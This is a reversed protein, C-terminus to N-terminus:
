SYVEIKNIVIYSRAYEENGKILTTGYIKGNDKNYRLYSSYYADRSSNRSYALVLNTSTSSFSEYTVPSKKNTPIYNGYGDDGSEMWSYLSSFSVRIKLKDSYPETAFVFESTQGGYGIKKSGKWITHWGVGEWLLNGTSDTIEIVSGEPITISKVQSFDIAM